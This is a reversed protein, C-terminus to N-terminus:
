RKMFEPSGLMLAIQMKPNSSAVVERTRESFNNGLTNSLQGVDLPKSKGLQRLGLRTAFEIRRLLADPNLWADETNKYGDPERHGYVPMGMQTLFGNFQHFNAIETDTARVM